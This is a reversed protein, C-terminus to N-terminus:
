WVRREWFRDRNGKSEQRLRACGTPDSRPAAILVGYSCEEPLYRACRSLTSPVCSRQPAVDLSMLLGGCLEGLKSKM